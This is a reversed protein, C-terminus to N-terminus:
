KAGKLREKFFAAAAFARVPPMGGAILKAVEKKEFQPDSALGERVANLVRELEAPAKAYETTLHERAFQTERILDRERARIRDNAFYGRRDTRRMEAIAALEDGDRQQALKALEPPASQRLETVLARLTVPDNVVLTGDKLRGEWQPREGDPLTAIHKRAIHMNAAMESAGASDVEAWDALVFQARTVDQKDLYETKEQLNRGPVEQALPATAPATQDIESVDNAKEPRRGSTRM